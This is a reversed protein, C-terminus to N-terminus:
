TPNPTTTEFSLWQELWRRNYEGHSCGFSLHIGVNPSHNGSVCKTHCINKLFDQGSFRPWTPHEQFAVRWQSQLLYPICL